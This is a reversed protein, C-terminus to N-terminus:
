WLDKLFADDREVKSTTTSSRPSPTSVGGAMLLLLWCLMELLEVREFGKNPFEVVVAKSFHFHSIVLPAVCVRIENASSGIEYRPHNSEVGGAHDEPTRLINASVQVTDSVM